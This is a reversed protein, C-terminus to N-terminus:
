QPTADEIQIEQLIVADAAVENTSDTVILRTSDPWWYFGISLSYNGPPTDSAIPLEFTDRMIEDAAV